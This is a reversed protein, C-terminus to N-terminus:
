LFWKMRPGNECSGVSLLPRWVPKKKMRYITTFSGMFLSFKKVDREFQESFNCREVMEVRVKFSVKLFDEVAYKWFEIYYAGREVLKLTSSGFHVKKLM